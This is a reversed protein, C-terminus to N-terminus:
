QVIAGDLDGDGSPLFGPEDGSVTPEVLRYVRFIHHEKALLRLLFLDNEDTLYIRANIQGKLRAKGMLGHSRRYMGAVHMRGTAQKMSDILDQYRKRAAIGDSFWVSHQYLRVEFRYGRAAYKSEKDRFSSTWGSRISKNRRQKGM